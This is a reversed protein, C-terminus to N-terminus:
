IKMFELKFIRYVDVNKQKYESAYTAKHIFFLIVTLFINIDYYNKDYIKYGLILNKFTIIHTEM